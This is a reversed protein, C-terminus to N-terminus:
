STPLLLQMYVWPYNNSVPNTVLSTTSTGGGTFYSIYIYQYRELRTTINFIFEQSSRAVETIERLLITGDNTGASYSIDAKSIYFWGALTGSSNEVLARGYINYIGTVPAQISFAHDYASSFTTANAKVWKGTTNVINTNWNTYMVSNLSLNACEIIGAANIKFKNRYSKLIIIGQNGASGYTSPRSLWSGGEAVTYGFITVGPGAIEYGGAGGAGGGSQYGGAYGGPSWGSGNWITNGQTAVSSSGGSGGAQGESGGGYGELNITSGAATYTLTTGSSNTIKSSEGTNYASSIAKNGVIINYTGSNFLMNEIYVVGGAGSYNWTSYGGGAVILVDFIIPNNLIITETSTFIILDQNITANTFTM